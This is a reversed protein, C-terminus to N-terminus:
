EGGGAMLEGARDNWLGVAALVADFTTALLRRLDIGEAIVYEAASVLFDEHVVTKVLNLRASVDNAAQLRVLHSPVTDGLAWQGFVRMFDFDGEVCRVYLQQGQVKLAVDGDEDISPRFGEDLLADLVRGRLPHEDGPPPFDPLSTPDTM